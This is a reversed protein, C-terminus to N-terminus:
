YRVENGNVISNFLNYVALASPYETNTSSSSITTVKNTKDEKGTIDQHSQIATDAKGLSTQVSSDLDTKPIGGSPKSYTGKAGWTSKETDTVLRHTSDDSLGSLTTPILATIKDKFRSLGTLDLYKKTAM